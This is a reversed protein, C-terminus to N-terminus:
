DRPDPGGELYLRYALDAPKSLPDYQDVDDDACWFRDAAQSHAARKGAARLAALRQARLGPTVIPDAPKGNQSGITHM